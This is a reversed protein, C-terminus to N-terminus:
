QLLLHRESELMLNSEKFGCLTNGNAQLPEMLLWKNNGQTRFSRLVHYWKERQVFSFSGLTQNQPEIWQECLCFLKRFEVWSQSCHWRRSSFIGVIWENKEPGMFKSKWWKRWITIFFPWAKFLRTDLSWQYSGFCSFLSRQLRRKFGM